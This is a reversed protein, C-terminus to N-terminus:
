PVVQCDCRPSNKILSSKLILVSIYRDGEGGTNVSRNYKKNQLHHKGNSKVVLHGYDNRGGRKKSQSRKHRKKELYLVYVSM